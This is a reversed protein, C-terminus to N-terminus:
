VSKFIFTSWSAMSYGKKDLHNWLSGKVDSSGKQIVFPEKHRFFTRWIIFLYSLSSEKLCITLDWSYNNKNPINNTHITYLYIFGICLGCAYFINVIFFPVKHTILETNLLPWVTHMLRESSDYTSKRIPWQALDSWEVCNVRVEQGGFLVLSRAITLDRIESVRWDGTAKIATCKCHSLAAHWILWSGGTM